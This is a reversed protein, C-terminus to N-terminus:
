LCEMPAVASAARTSAPQADPGGSTCVGGRAGDDKATGPRSFGASTSISRQPHRMEVGAREVVGENRLAENGRAVPEPLHVKPALAAEALHGLVEAGGPDLAVAGRAGHEVAAVHVAFPQGVAGIGLAHGLGERGADVGIHRLHTRLRRQQRLFERQQAVLRRGPRGLVHHADAM